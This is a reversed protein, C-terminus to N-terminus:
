MPVTSGPLRLDTIVVDFAFAALRDLADEGTDVQEVRFGHDTLQEAIAERLPREDEVFLVHRVDSEPCDPGPPVGETRLNLAGVGPIGLWDSERRAMWLRTVTNQCCM